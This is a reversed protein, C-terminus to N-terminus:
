IASVTMLQIIKITTYNGGTFDTIRDSLWNFLDIHCSIQPYLTSQMDVSVPVIIVHYYNYYYNM